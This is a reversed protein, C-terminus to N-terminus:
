SLVEELSIASIATFSAERVKRLAATQDASQKVNKLIALAFAKGADRVAQSRNQQDESQGHSTFWAEIQLEPSIKATAKVENSQPSQQAQKNAAPAQSKNKQSM